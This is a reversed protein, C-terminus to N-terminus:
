DSIGKITMGAQGSDKQYLPLVNHVSSESDVDHSIGPWGQIDPYGIIQHPSDIFMLVVEIRIAKCGLIEKCDQM